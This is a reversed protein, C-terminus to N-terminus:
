HLGVSRRPCGAYAIESFLVPSTSRAIFSPDEAACEVLAAESQCAGRSRRHPFARAEDVVRNACMLLEVRAEATAVMDLVFLDLTGLRAMGEALLCLIIWAREALANHCGHRSRTAPGQIYYRQSDRTVVRTFLSLDRIAPQM